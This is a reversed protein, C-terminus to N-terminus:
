ELSLSLQPKSPTAAPPAGTTPAMTMRDFILDRRPPGFGDPDGGGALFRRILGFDRTKCPRWVAGRRLLDLYRAWAEPSKFRCHIMMHTRYCFQFAGIHPGFPESYDESHFDIIGATQGTAMCKTAAAPFLGAAQRKKLWALARSRQEPSFGNYWNM